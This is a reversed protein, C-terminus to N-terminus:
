ELTWRPPPPRASAHARAHRSHPGHARRPHSRSPSAPANAGVDARPALPVGGWEFATLGLAAGIRLLERRLEYDAVESVLFAHETVARRFWARVDAHRRPHCISGLVGTDLLLRVTGVAVSDRPARDRGRGMGTRRRRERCGLSRADLRTAAHPRGAPARTRAIRRDTTCTRLRPAVHSTNYRAVGAVGKKRARPEIWTPRPRRTERTRRTAQTPPM